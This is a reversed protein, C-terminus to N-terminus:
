TGEGSAEAYGPDWPMVLVTREGQAHMKPLIPQVSRSGEARLLDELSANRAVCDQLDRLNYLTPQSIPMSKNKAADLAAQPTQWRYESTEGTDASVEHSAPAAVAFFRTDFRVPSNSPTIWHAWYVLRGLDLRLQERELVEVFLTPEKTIQARRQQVRELAQPDCPRGDAHSALLVGTEEFTERCAAVALGICEHQPLPQGRLTHMRHCTFESRQSVLARAADSADSGAVSGGPFVWLGGMFAMNSHRLTMLIEIGAASERLLLV